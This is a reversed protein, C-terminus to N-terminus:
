LACAAGCSMPRSLKDAQAGGAGDPNSSSSGGKLFEMINKIGSSSPFDKAKQDLLKSVRDGFSGYSLLEEISCSPANKALGRLSQDLDGGKSLQQTESNSTFFYRILLNM